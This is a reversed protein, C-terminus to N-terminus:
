LIFENLLVLNANNIPVNELNSSKKFLAEDRVDCACFKSLKSSEELTRSWICESVFAAM